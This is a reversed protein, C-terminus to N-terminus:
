YVKAKLNELDQTLTKVCPEDDFVGEGRKLVSVANSKCGFVGKKDGHLLQLAILESCAECAAQYRERDREFGQTQTYRVQRLRDDLAKGPEGVALHLAACAAWLRPDSSIKSTLKGLFATAKTAIAKRTRETLEHHVPEPGALHGGEADEAADGAAAEAAAKASEEKEKIVTAKGEIVGIVQRICEALIDHDIPHDKPDRLDVLQDYANLAAQIRGLDLAVYVINTVIKWNDHQHRAAEELSRLAEKKLGRKIQCSALNNWAEANDEEMTVLRIFCNIAKEWNEVRMYACGIAFWIRPFLPNLALALDYHAIGDDFRGEKFAVHGLSRQARAFRHGSVEWAREYCTKDQTLDGLLVLMKPTEKVALRARVVETAKNIKEMVVYCQVVDEWLELPEFLQLASAVIGLSMYIKALEAQMEWKPPYALQRAWRLRVAAPTADHDKAHQDILTQIQMASREVTRSRECQLRSRLLLCMSHVLWNNPHQAVREVYPLMEEETLGHKPNKNRVNLCLSLIICQDVPPLNDSILGATGADGDEKFVPRGHIDSDAALPVDVPAPAQHAQAQAQAQATGRSKAEVVLQATEKTQFKTRVGMKGTLHVTLARLEQARSFHKFSPVADRYYEHVLGCELHAIAALDARLDAGLAAPAQGELWAPCDLAELVLGYGDLSRQRLTGVPDSMVRQHVLALRASAWRAAVLAPSGPAASAALGLLARSAVALLLSARALHYPEEGDVSLDASASPALSLLRAELAALAEPDLPPGTINEVVFCDGLAMCAALAVVWDQPATGNALAALDADGVLALARLPDGMVRAVALAAPAGSDESLPFVSSLDAGEGLGSLTDMGVVLGLPLLDAASPNAFILSCTTM